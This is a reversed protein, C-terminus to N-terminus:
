KRFKRRFGVVGVLGSGLLLLMGPEPVGTPNKSEVKLNDIAIDHEGDDSFRLEYVDTNFIIDEPFTVLTNDNSVYATFDSGVQNGNVDYARIKFDAGDTADLVFALTSKYIEKIPNDDFYIYFYRSDDGSRMYHTSNTSWGGGTVVQSSFVRIDSGYVGSMYSSIPSSVNYDIGEFTFEVSTAQAVAFLGFVMVSIMIM